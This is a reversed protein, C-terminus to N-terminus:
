VVAPITLPAAGDGGLGTAKESRKWPAWIPDARGSPGNLRESKRSVRSVVALRRSTMWSSVSDPAMIETKVWASAAWTSPTQKSVSDDRPSINREL